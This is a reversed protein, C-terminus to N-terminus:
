TRRTLARHDKVGTELPQQPKEFMKMAFDEHREIGNNCM